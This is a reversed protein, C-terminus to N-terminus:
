EGDRLRRNLKIGADTLDTAYTEAATEVAAAYVKAADRIATQFRTSAVGRAALYDEVAPVTTGGIDNGFPGPQSPPPQPRNAPTHRALQKADPM